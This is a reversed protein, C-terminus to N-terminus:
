RSSTSAAASITMGPGTAANAVRVAKADNITKLATSQPFGVNGQTAYTTSADIGMFADAM